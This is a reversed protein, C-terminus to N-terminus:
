LDWDAQEHNENYSLSFYSHKIIQNNCLTSPIEIQAFIIQFVFILLINLIIKKM